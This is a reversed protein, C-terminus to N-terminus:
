FSVRTNHFNASSSKVLSENRRHIMNKALKSIVLSNRAEVSYQTSEKKSRLFNFAVSKVKKIDLDIREPDGFFLHILIATVISNKSRLVLSLYRALCLNNNNNNDNVRYQM